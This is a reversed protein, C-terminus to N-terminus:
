QLDTLSYIDACELQIAPKPLNIKWIYMWNKKEKFVQFKLFLQVFLFNGRVYVGLMFFIEIIM